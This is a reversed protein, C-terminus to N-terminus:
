LIKINIAYNDGHWGVTASDGFHTRLAAVIAECDSSGDVRWGLNFTRNGTRTAKTAGLKKVTAPIYPAAVKANSVPRPALEIYTTM